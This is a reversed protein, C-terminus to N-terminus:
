PSELIRDRVFYMLEERGLEEMVPLLPLLADARGFCIPALNRVCIEQSRNDCICVRTM